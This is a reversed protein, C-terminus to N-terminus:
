RQKSRLLAQIEHFTDPNTFAPVTVSAGQRSRIRLSPVSAKGTFLATPFFLPEPQISEVDKWRIAARSSRFPFHLKSFHMAVGDHGLTVFYKRPFLERQNLVMKAVRSLGWALGLSGLGIAFGTATFRAEGTLIFVPVLAACLMFLVIPAIMIVGHLRIGLAPLGLPLIATVGKGCDLISNQSAEAENEEIFSWATNYDSKPWDPQTM